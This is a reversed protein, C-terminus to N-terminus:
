TLKISKAKSYKCIDDAFNNSIVAKELDITYILYLTPSSISGQSLGINTIKTAVHQNNIKLYIKRNSIYCDLKPHKSQPFGIQLMTQYMIDLVVNDYASHIDIFVTPVSYEHTYDINIDTNLLAIIQITSHRNNSFFNQYRELKIQNKKQNEYISLSRYMKQYYRLM